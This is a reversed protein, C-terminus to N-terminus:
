TFFKKKRSIKFKQPERSTSIPWFFVEIWCKLEGSKQISEIPLIWRTPIWSFILCLELNHQRWLNFVRSFGVLTVSYIIISPHRWFKRYLKETHVMISCWHEITQIKFFVTGEGSTGRIRFYKIIISRHYHSIHLKFTRLFLCAQVNYAQEYSDIYMLLTWYKLIKM